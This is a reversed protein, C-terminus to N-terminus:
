ESETASETTSETASETVGATASETTSESDTEEEASEAARRARAHREEEEDEEPEPEFVLAEGAALAASYDAEGALAAEDVPPLAEAQEFEEDLRAQRENTAELVADAVQACILRVSRIADDNAPVVWDILDPDCNTDTIAVIPIELRRAEAVAISERHPDVVFLAGPLRRMRRIGGLASNLKTIEENLKGAEKKTLREFEGADRRAELAELRQIRRKITQFNTLMGGLWRTNVHHQGSREAETALAEQAQKKTGVFLISDGKRVTERVFELAADLRSVTQALDIIHIGNREAFIFERMKPNWRRTQHGFHVGAELLQKMTTAALLSVEPQEEARM